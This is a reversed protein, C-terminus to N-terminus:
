KVASRRLFNAIAPKKKKGAAVSMVLNEFKKENAQIEIGNLALFVLAAVTGTRKNGDVFPHNQIIHFLYAAAMEFIDRHLLKGRIGAKPLVIASQLLNMDRIGFDGGYREIQDRHIEIIESLELFVPTKM